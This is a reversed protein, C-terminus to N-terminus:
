QGLGIVFALTRGLRLVTEDDLHGITRGVRQRKIALIKDAMIHSHKHLGTEPTPEVPIRFVQVNSVDSTLPCLILSDLDDETLFDSQVVVAHRPKGYDGSSVMSVIDGRKM